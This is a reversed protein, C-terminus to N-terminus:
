KRLIANSISVNVGARTNVIHYNSLAERLTLQRMVANAFQWM